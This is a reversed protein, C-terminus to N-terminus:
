LIAIYDKGKNMTNYITYFVATTIGVVAGGWLTDIIAFNMSWNDITAYNTMDYIGYTCIGLIVAHVVSRKEKIIFHYFLVIMLIYAFIAPVIKFKLDSKQIGKIMDIFKNRIAFYIWAIDIVLLIVSFIFIYKIDNIDYITKTLM